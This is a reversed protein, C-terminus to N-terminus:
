LKWYTKKRKVRRIHKDVNKWVNEENKTLGKGAYQDVAVPDAPFIVQPFDSLADVLDDHRTKPYRTLQEILEIHNKNLFIRHGEFYPTLSKVRREKSFNSNPKTEFIGFWFKRKEMEELLAYKIAQQFANTELTIIGQEHVNYKIVSEFIKNIFESITVRDQWPDIIYVNNNVDVGIVLVVSFDASKKLSAAADTLVFHRLNSPLETYYQIDKQKFIATESDIPENMYQNSFHSSGQGTRIDALVEHTFRSPFYLSNDENIAKRVLIHWLEAEEDIVHGYLDNFHYRTGIMILQSDGPDPLSLILRYRDIIKSLQDPTNSNEETVVDDMIVLDYHMGTKTQLISSATVTPEKVEGMSTRTAIVIDDRKWKGQSNPKLNGYLAKFMINTEITDKIQGIYKTAKTYSGTVMLIRINPNKVMRWLSYSINAITSKFAGRPLLILKKSKDPDCLVDCLEQHPQTEIDKFGLIHKSFYYFDDLGKRRIKELQLQELHM